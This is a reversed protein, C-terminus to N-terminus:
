LGVLKEASALYALADTYGGAVVIQNGVVMMFHTTRPTILTDLATWLGTQEDYASTAGTVLAGVTYGGAVVAKGHLFVSVGPPVGYVATPIPDTVSWTNTGADFLECYQTPTNGVNNGGIILAKSIGTLFVMNGLSHGYTTSGVATWLGTTPNYREATKPISSTHGGALLVTGDALKAFVPFRRAGTVVSGTASWLDTTPDYLVSTTPGGATADGGAALLSKGNDLTVLCTTYRAVLLPDTLTWQDLDPDYVECTLTDAYLADTGGAVLVRGDSLLCTSFAYRPVNLTAMTAWGNNPHYAYTAGSVADGTTFGGIVLMRGDQLVVQGGQWGQQGPM